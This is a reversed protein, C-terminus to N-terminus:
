SLQLNRRSSSPIERTRKSFGQKERFSFHKVVAIEFYCGHEDSYDLNELQEHEHKM